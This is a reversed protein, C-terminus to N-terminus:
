DRSRSSSVIVAPAMGDLAAAAPALPAVAPAAAILPLDRRGFPGPAPASSAAASAQVAIMPWKAVPTAAACLEELLKIEEANVDQVQEKDVDCSDPSKKPLRPHIGLLKTGKGHLVGACQQSLPPTKQVAKAGM